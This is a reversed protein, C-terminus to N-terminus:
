SGEFFAVTGGLGAVTPGFPAMVPGYQTGATVFGGSLAAIVPDVVPNIMSLAQSETIAQQLYTNGQASIQGCETDLEIVLPSLEKSASTEAGVISVISGADTCALPLGITDGFVFMELLPTAIATSFARSSNESRVSAAAPGSAAVAGTAAVFTAATLALGLRSRMPHMLDRTKM